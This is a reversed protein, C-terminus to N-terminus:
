GRVQSWLRWVVQERGHRSDGPKVGEEVACLLDVWGSIRESKASVWNAERRRERRGSGEEGGVRSGVEDGLARANCEAIDRKVKEKDFITRSVSKKTAVAL